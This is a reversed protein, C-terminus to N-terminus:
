SSGGARVIVIELYDAPVVVSSPGGVNHENVLQEIARTLGQQDKADLAGFAKFTPGYYTRFVEVLHAASTYRFNFQRRTIHIDSADEGFLNVIHERTGWRAPSL